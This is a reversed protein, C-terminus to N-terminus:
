PLRLTGTLVTVAQGGVRVRAPRGGALHVEVAVRGPRGVFDGQEARFTVRDGAAPLVGAESLWVGLSAHLSGTTSDEPFGSQPAFYRSHIAAGPDIAERATLSVGRLGSERGVRALREMDPALGKLVALGTVPILLDTETTRVPRAWSGVADPGAGLADLIPGLPETAPTCARLTPELWVLPPEAAVWLRGVRTDFAVRGGALRGTERLAHVAAVTGHGCFGLESGSATLWRLSAGSVFATAARGLEAAIARMAAEDLGAADPVVGAPNGALPRDTFADVLLVELTRTM